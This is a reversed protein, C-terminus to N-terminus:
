RRSWLEPDRAFIGDMIVAGIRIVPRIRKRCVEETVSTGSDGSSRLARASLALTAAVKLNLFSHGWTLAQRKDTRAGTLLTVVYTSM